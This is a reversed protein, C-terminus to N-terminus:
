KIVCGDGLDCDSKEKRRYICCGVNVCILFVIGLIIIELFEVCSNKM